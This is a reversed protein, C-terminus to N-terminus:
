GNDNSTEGIFKTMIDNLKEPTLDSKKLKISRAVGLLEEAKDIDTEILDEIVGRIKQLMLNLQFTLHLAENNRAVISQALEDDPNNELIIKAQEALSKYSNIQSEVYDKNTSWERGIAIIQIGLWKNAFIKQLTKYADKKRQVLEREKDVVIVNNSNLRYFNYKSYPLNTAVIYNVFNSSMQKKFQKETTGKPPVVRHLINNKERFLM